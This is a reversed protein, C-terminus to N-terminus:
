LKAMEVKWKLDFSWLYSFSHYHNVFLDLGLCAPLEFGFNKYKVMRRGDTCFVLSHTLIVSFVHLTREM